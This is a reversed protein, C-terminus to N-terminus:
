GLRLHKLTIRRASPLPLDAKPAAGVLYASLQEESIRVVGRGTGIRYCALKGCGVLSYVTATSVELRAAVQKVTM